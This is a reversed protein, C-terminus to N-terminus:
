LGYHISHLYAGRMAWGVLLLLCTLTVSLRTYRFVIPVALAIAPYIFVMAWEFLEDGHECKHCYGIGIFFAMAMSLVGGWIRMAMSGVGKMEEPELKRGGIWGKSILDALLCLVGPNCTPCFGTDLRLHSCRYEGDCKRCKMTSM